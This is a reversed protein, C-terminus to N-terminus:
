LSLTSVKGDVVLAVRDGGLPLTRADWARWGGIRDSTTSISGDVGLELVVLRVAGTRYDQVTSLATRQEPLYTFARPDTTATLETQRGFVATDVRRPAALDRIDFVAAQAGVTAGRLTADQGLGLLLGEGLPHLYASFGPIKLEGLVRPRSPDSLDVTYLPDVQRFTVVVALDGFWRVSQIQERIGMDGARGVEVLEEGREELVVVANEDPNWSDRGLATAVRLHGDHESFSWRDQVRGPVEGSAVYTTDPGELAFAHLQTSPPETSTRGGALPVPEGWWGGTSTAVYLRDTSSYVLDGAATVATASRDTPSDAAFTVVSLTGLGSRHEPHRVETCELLPRIGTGSGVTPLWDDITSGRVIERNELRAQAPTRGRNPQVFDLVPGATRVVLRLTGDYQRASVLDGGFRTRHEIRPSGPDGIDITVVSTSGGGPVPGPLRSDSVEGHHGASGLVVVRDGALLLEPSGVDPPLAVRSLERPRGSVDTVVVDPRSRLGQDVHVVIEGDTKATDPEDVGAEQVNTGTQGSGVAQDPASAATEMVGRAEPAVAPVPGYYGPLGLGWPGVMPLASDVYWQRLQECHTFAPLGSASAPPSLPAAALAAGAALSSAVAAGVIAFTRRRM